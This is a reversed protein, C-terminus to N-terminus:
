KSIVECSSKKIYVFTYKLYIYIHGKIKPVIEVFFTTAHPFDFTNNVVWLSM